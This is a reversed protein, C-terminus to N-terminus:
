LVLIPINPILKSFEKYRYDEYSFGPWFLFYFIGQKFSYLVNTIILMINTCSVAQRSVLYIATFFTTYFWYPDYMSTNSYALSFAFVIVTSIANLVLCEYEHNASYKLYICCIIISLAYPLLLICLSKRYAAMIILKNISM